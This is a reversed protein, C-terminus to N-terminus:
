QENNHNSIAFPLVKSFVKVPWNFSKKLFLSFSFSVAKQNDISAKEYFQFKKKLFLFFSFTPANQNDISANGYENVAVNIDSQRIKAVYIIDLEEKNQRPLYVANILERLSSIPHVSALRYVTFMVDSYFFSFDVITKAVSRNM